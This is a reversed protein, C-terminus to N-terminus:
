KQVLFRQDNTCGVNWAMGSYVCADDFEIQEVNVYVPSFTFANRFLALLLFLDVKAGGFYIWLNEM